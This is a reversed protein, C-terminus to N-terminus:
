GDEWRRYLHFIWGAKEMRRMMSKIIRESEKIDDSGVEIAMGETAVSIAGGCRKMKPKRMGGIVKKM